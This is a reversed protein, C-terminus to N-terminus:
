KLWSQRIEQIIKQFQDFNGPKRYYRNIGLKECEEIEQMNTSSSLVIVPIRCTKINIRIQKLVEYGSVRPLKLDLLIIGPIQETDRAAYKGQGFLFDLAEQGDYVVIMKNTIGCRQFALRTLEVDDPNDEILLVYKENM